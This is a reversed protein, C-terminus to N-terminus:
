IIIKGTAKLYIINDKIDTIQYEINYKKNERSTLIYINEKEEYHRKFNDIEKKSLDNINIWANKLIEMIKKDKRKSALKM